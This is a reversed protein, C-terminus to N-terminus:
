LEDQYVVMRRTSGLRARLVAKKGFLHGPSCGQEVDAQEVVQDDRALAIEREKPSTQESSNKTSIRFRRDQTPGGNKKHRQKPDGAASGERFEPFHTFVATGSISGGNKTKYLASGTCPM